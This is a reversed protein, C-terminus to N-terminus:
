SVDIGAIVINTNGKGISEIELKIYIIIRIRDKLEGCYQNSKCLQVTHCSFNGSSRSRSVLLNGPVFFSRERPFWWNRGYPWVCSNEWMFRSICWNVTSLKCGWSKNPVRFFQDFRNRFFFVVRFPFFFRMGVSIPENVSLLSGGAGFVKKM